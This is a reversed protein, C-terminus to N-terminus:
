SVLAGRIFSDWHAEAVVKAEEVTQYITYHGEADPVGFLWFGAIDKGITYQRSNGIHGMWREEGLPSVEITWELQKITVPRAAVTPQVEAPTAGLFFDWHDQFEAKAAEETPAHGTKMGKGRGCTSWFWVEPSTPHFQVPRCFGVLFTGCYGNQFRPVGATTELWELPVSVQPWPVLPQEMLPALSPAVIDHYTVKIPQREKALLSSGAALALPAAALTRLFSARTIPTPTTTM